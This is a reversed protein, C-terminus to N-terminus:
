AVMVAHGGHAYPLVSPSVCGSYGLLLVYIRGYMGQEGCVANADSWVASCQGESSQQAAGADAYHAGDAPLRQQLHQRGATSHAHQQQVGTCKPGSRVAKVAGQRCIRDTRACESSSIHACSAGAKLGLEANAPQRCAV